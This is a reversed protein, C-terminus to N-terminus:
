VLLEVEYGHMCVTLAAYVYLTSRMYLIVFVTIRFVHMVHGTQWLYKNKLPHEDFNGDVYM